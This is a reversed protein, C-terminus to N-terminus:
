QHSYLVTRVSGGCLILEARSNKMLLAIELDNTIVTMNEKDMIRKAIEYTTTGADLYVTTGERIFEVCKEAIREKQGHNKVSKDAYAVETKSVAGGHCREILGEKQLRELDRRITMTSVNLKTALEQAQVSGDEQIMNLIKIQREAMMM